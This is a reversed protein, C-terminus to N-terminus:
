SYLSLYYNKTLSKENHYANKIEGLLATDKGSAMLNSEIKSLLSSMQSDCSSEMSNAVGLYKLGIELKKANTHMEPPLSQYESIASNILGDVAGSFTAELVYIEGILESLEAEYDREPKSNVTNVNNGILNATNQNDEAQAKGETILKIAEAQSLEGKQVALKEDATFERINIENLAAKKKETNDALMQEIEKTSYKGISSLVKINEWQLFAVVAVFVVLICVIAIIVKKAKKM